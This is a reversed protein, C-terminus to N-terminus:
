QLYKAQSALVPTTGKKFCEIAGWLAACESRQKLLEKPDHNPDGAYEDTERRMTSLQEELESLTKVALEKLNKADRKYVM